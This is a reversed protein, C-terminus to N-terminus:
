FNDNKGKHSFDFRSLESLCRVIAINKYSLTEAKFHARM